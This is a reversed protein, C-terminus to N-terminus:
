VRFYYNQGAVATTLSWTTVLGVNVVTETGNASTRYGVLYRALDTESNPEWAITVTAAEAQATALICVSLCLGLFRLAKRM